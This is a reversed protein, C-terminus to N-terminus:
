SLNRIEMFAPDFWEDPHICGDESPNPGYGWHFKEPSVKYTLFKELGATYTHMGIEFFDQSLIHVNPIHPPEEEITLFAFNTAPIDEGFVAKAGMYYFAQQVDYSYKQVSRKFERHHSGGQSVKKIDIIGSIDKKLMDLRCRCLLGSAKDTFILTVEKYTDAILGPIGHEQDEEFRAKVTNLMNHQSPKLPLMGNEKLAEKEKRAPNAALNEGSVKGYYEWFEDPTLIYRHIMTGVAMANTTQPHRKAYIWKAVSDLFAMLDSRSLAEHAHYEDEPIGLYAGPVNPDLKWDEYTKFKFDM